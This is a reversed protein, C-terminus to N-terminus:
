SSSLRSDGGFFCAVSSTGFGYWGRSSSMSSFTRWSRVTHVQRVHDAVVTRAEKGDCGGFGLPRQVPEDLMTQRGKAAELVRDHALVPRHRMRKKGDREVETHQM